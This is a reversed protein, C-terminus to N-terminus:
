SQTISGSIELTVNAKTVNDVANNVQFGTIYAAFTWVSNPSDTFTLQFNTLTRSARLTRLLTHQTDTPIYNIDFTLQGEDPLGMRKEKATSDLDTLDIVNASGGPGSINSVETIQQYAVPSASTNQIDLTMGQSELASSSM